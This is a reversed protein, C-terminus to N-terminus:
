HRRRDAAGTGWAQSTAATAGTGGRLDVLQERGEADYAHLTRRSGLIEPALDRKLRVVDATLLQRLFRERMHDSGQELITPGALGTLVSAVAGCRVIERRVVDDAWAPVGKGYWREPSSPVGWGSEVWSNVGPVSRSLSPDRHSLTRQRVDECM